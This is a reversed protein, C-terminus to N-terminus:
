RLLHQVRGHAGIREAFSAVALFAPLKWTHFTRRPIEEGESLGTQAWKRNIEKLTIRKATYLTEVLWVYKNILNKSM